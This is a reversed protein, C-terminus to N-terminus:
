HTQTHFLVLWQFHIPISQIFKSKKEMLMLLTLQMAHIKQLQETIIYMQLEYNYLTKYCLAITM